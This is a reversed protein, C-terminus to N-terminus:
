FEAQKTYGTMILNFLPHPTQSVEEKGVSLM